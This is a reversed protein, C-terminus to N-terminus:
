RPKFQDLPPFLESVPCEFFQAILYIQRVSYKAWSNQREVHGIFAPSTELIASLVSQSVDHKKRLERVREIVAKDIDTRMFFSSFMAFYYINM